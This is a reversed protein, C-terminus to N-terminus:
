SNPIVGDAVGPLTTPWSQTAPWSIMGDFTDATLASELRLNDAAVRVTEGFALQQRFWRVNQFGVPIVPLDIIAGTGSVKLQDLHLTVTQADRKIRIVGGTVVAGALATVDRWGTDGYILQDRSKQHDWAKVVMGATQEITYPAGGSDALAFERLTMPIVSKAAILGGVHRMFEALEATTTNGPANLLEPHIRITVGKGQAIAVAIQAKATTISAAGTDIWYSNVGQKPEGDLDFIRGGPLSGTYLAHNDVIIRGAETTYYSALTTGNNHGLFGNTGSLGVQVYTDVTVGPLNAELEDRGGIIETKIDEVTFQDKHTRGHNAIEVGLNDHWGKVITWNTRNDHQYRQMTPDYMQSNLAITARIGTEQLLPVIIENFNNTGHDAIFAVAARGRTRPQGIRRRLDNVRVMHQHIGVDTQSPRFYQWGAKVSGAFITRIAFGEANMPIVMQVRNVNSANDTYSTVTISSAGDPGTFPYGREATANSSLPQFYLGPTLVTDLHETNLRTGNKAKAIGADTYSSTAGIATDQAVNKAELSAIKPNANVAAAAADVVVQSSAIYDAVIPQVLPTAQTTIRSDIAAGTQTGNIRSAVASDTVSATMKAALRAELPTPFLYGDDVTVLRKAM